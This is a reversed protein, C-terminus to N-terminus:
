VSAIKLVSKIIVPLVSPWTLNQFFCSSPISNTFCKRVWKDSKISMVSLKSPVKNHVIDKSLDSLTKSTMLKSIILMILSSKTGKAQENIWASRSGTAVIQTYTTLFYYSNKNNLFFNWPTFFIRWHQAYKIRSTSIYWQMFNFFHVILRNM